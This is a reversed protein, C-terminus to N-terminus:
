LRIYRCVAVSKPTIDISSQGSPNLNFSCTHGHPPNNIPVQTSVYDRWYRRYWVSGDSDSAGDPNGSLNWPQLTTGASIQTVTSGVVPNYTISPLNGQAITISSNGFLQGILQGSPAIHSLVRSRTDITQQNHCISWPANVATGDLPWYGDAVGLISFSEIIHGTDGSANVWGAQSNMSNTTKFPTGIPMYSNAIYIRGYMFVQSYRPYDRDSLWPAVPYCTFEYFPEDQEIEIVIKTASTPASTIKLKTPDTKSRRYKLGNDGGSYQVDIQSLFSTRAPLQIQTDSPQVVLSVLQKPM